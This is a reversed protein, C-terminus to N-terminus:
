AAVRGESERRAIWAACQARCHRALEVHTTWAACARDWLALEARLETLSMQEFPKVIAIM